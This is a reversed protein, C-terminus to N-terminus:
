RGMGSGWGGGNGMYGPEVKKKKAPGGMGRDRGNWAGDNQGPKRGGGGGADGDDDDHQYGEYSAEDYRRRKGQRMSRNASNPETKIQAASPTGPRSM